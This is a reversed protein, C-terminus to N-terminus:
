EMLEAALRHAAETYEEAAEELTIGDESEIEKLDGSKEMDKLEALMQPVTWAALEEATQTWNCVDDYIESFDYKKMTKGEQKRKWRRVHRKIAKIISCKKPATLTRNYGTQASQIPAARATWGFVAAIQEASAGQEILRAARLQQQRYANM